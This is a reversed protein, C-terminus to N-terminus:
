DSPPPLPREQGPVISPPEGRAEPEGEALRAFVMRGTATQRVSRVVVRVSRGLLHAAGDALIMTGDELYGLGQDAERGPRQIEVTLASGPQIPQRLAVGLRNLNVVTLGEVRAVQDLNYDVTCLAAGLDRALRVLRLDVAEIAPFDRDALEVTVDPLERLAALQDLGRRGRQRRAAHGSDALAQLEELVFRPVVLPYLWFGARALELLRGDVLASSDVVVAGRAAAPARGGEAGASGAIGLAALDRRRARGVTVGIPVAMGATALAAVWGLGAPLGGLVIAVLAAVALGAGGGILGGVLEPLPTAALRQTIWRYPRVSLSPATLYGAACGVGLGALITVVVGASTGLPGRLLWILQTAYLTGLLAGGAMGAMRAIREPRPAGAERGEADAPRGATTVAPGPGHATVETSRPAVATGLRARRAGADARSAPERHPM